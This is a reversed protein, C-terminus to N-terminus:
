HSSSGHKEAIRTCGRVFDADGTMCESAQMVNNDIEWAQGALYQAQPSSPESRPLAPAATQVSVKPTALIAVLLVPLLAVASHLLLMLRHGGYERNRRLAQLAHLVAALTAPIIVIMAASLMMM